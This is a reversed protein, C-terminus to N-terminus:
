LAPPSGTPAAAEPAAAPHGPHRDGPEGPEVDAGGGTMLDDIADNRSAQPPSGPTSTEQPQEALRLARLAGEAELGFLTRLRVETQPYPIEIKAAALADSIAWTYAAQMGAPRKVADLTPWVLLEFNLGNDGIGTLWVQSKRNGEDPLTFPLKRAAELVVDRVQAKNANSAVGFPVHIRRGEGHLTWNTIANEVLKSNPVLIDVNDNTRIRTARPGIEQVTGRKGDVMEVYDGINLVRDFILVLGSVFEKVVGQLGLGVGVGLAGAFVAFSSLNLGVANMAFFFGLIVVGYSVLKQVIYISSASHGAKGRVRDLALRLVRSLFFAVVIITAGTIVGGLTVPTKGLSLLQLNLVSHFGAHM